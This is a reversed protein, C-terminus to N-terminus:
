KGRKGVTYVLEGACAYLWLTCALPDDLLIVLDVDSEPRAMGRAPSGVLAIGLIAREHLGWERLNNLLEEM